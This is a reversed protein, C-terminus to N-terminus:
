VNRTMSSTNLEPNVKRLLANQAADLDSFLDRCEQEKIALATQTNQLQGQAHHLWQRLNSIVREKADDAM